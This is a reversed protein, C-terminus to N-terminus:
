FYITGGTREVVDDVDGTWARTSLYKWGADAGIFVVVGEDIQEAVRAAGALAAGSSLGAFIGVGSLRRTWEVSERPRVIRRADLLEPGGWKDYIPPIYGDALSRLGDVMEGVPPEVAMVKIAPDQEKLFTGAGMLTGSTGLGAVLHTIGPVDRHIEPGTGEYHARPNAANSYQDLFVWEPHEMALRRAHRVAGNSGESGPTTVIEAGFVELMGRREASVNEPMVIKVPYGKIKAIMALAIGTNGSSPEVITRAPSLTGDAEADDLMARAIRDKVSGTPNRGELKALIRVRPNPSLTSVDVVPTNGILDLASAVAPM